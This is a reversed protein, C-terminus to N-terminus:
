KRFDIGAETAWDNLTKSKTEESLEPSCMMDWFMKSAVEPSKNTAVAWKAIFDVIEPEFKDDTM